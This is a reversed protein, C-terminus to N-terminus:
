GVENENFRSNYILVSFIPKQLNILNLNAAKWLIPAVKVVQQVELFSMFSLIHNVIELPMEELTIPKRSM